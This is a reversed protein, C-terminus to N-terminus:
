PRIWLREKVFYAASAADQRERVAVAAIWQGPAPRAQAAYRGPAIEAFALALDRAESAPHRLMGDLSLGALPRAAHDTLGVVLRGAGRDYEVRAKWGLTAQREAELIRQNYHLGRRYADRTDFGSFTAVAYYLFVGNVLFVIGFFAVFAALVHRGQLGDPLWGGTM